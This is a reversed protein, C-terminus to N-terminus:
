GEDIPTLKFAISKAPHIILSLHVILKLLGTEADLDEATEEEALEVRYRRLIASIVARAETLALHSGPCNRAGAGFSFFANSVERQNAGPIPLGRRGP